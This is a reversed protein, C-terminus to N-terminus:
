ECPRVSREAPCSERLVVLGLCLRGHSTDLKQQVGADSRVLNANDGEVLLLAVANALAEPRTDAHLDGVDVTELAALLM